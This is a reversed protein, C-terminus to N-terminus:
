PMGKKVRKIYANSPNEKRNKEAKIAKIEELELLFFEFTSEVEKAKREDLVPMYTQNLWYFNAGNQQVLKIQDAKEEEIQDAIFKFQRFFDNLVATHLVDKHKWQALPRQAITDSSNVYLGTQQFLGLYMTNKRWFSRKKKQTLRNNKRVATIYRRIMKNNNLVGKRFVRQYIHRYEEQLQEIEEEDLLVGYETTESDSKVPKHLVGEQRFAFNQNMLKKAVPLTVFDNEQQYKALYAPKIKTQSVGVDSNFAATLTRDVQQNEQIIDHVMKVLVQQLHIPKNDAGKAPFIVAGQHMSQGPYDLQYIGQNDQSLDFLHHDVIGEQEVLRQRKANGIQEASAQIIAEATLVFDNHTDGSNAHVQYFLVRSGTQAVQQALEEQKVLDLATFRQGIVVVLNTQNARLNLYKNVELFSEKFTVEKPSLRNFAFSKGVTQIWHEADLFPTENNRRDQQNLHYFLTAYSVTTFYKPAAFSTTLGQLVGKLVDLYPVVEKSGDLLFVVNLKRNDQLIQRYADYYIPQGEVNYVKNERYDLVQDFYNIKFDQSTTGYTLPYLQMLRLQNTITDSSRVPTFITGTGSAMPTEVGLQASEKGTTSKMRFATRQGWLGIVRADVWGYVNNELNKEEVKPATGLFIKKKDASFAYFYVLTNLPLKSEGKQQLRVDKFVYISDKDMYRELLPLISKEQLALMGKVRFGTTADHLSETWLLLDRQDMWGREKIQTADLKGEQISGPEYSAVLYRNGKRKLVVFPTLFPVSRDASESKAHAYLPAKDTHAYVVWPKSIKPTVPLLINDQYVVVGQKKPTNQITIKKATCGSLAVVILVTLSWLKRSIKDRM